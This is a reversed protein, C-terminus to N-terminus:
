NALECGECTEPRELPSPQGIGLELLSHSLQNVRNQYEAYTFRREGDVIATKTPYLRAARKLFDDILLPVQM